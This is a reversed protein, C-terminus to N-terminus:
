DCKQILSNNQKISGIGYLFILTLILNDFTHNASYLNSNLDSQYTSWLDDVTTPKDLKEIIYSGFGFLSQSFNTHKSPILM